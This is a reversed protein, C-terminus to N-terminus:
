YLNGVGGQSLVSLLAWAFIESSEDEGPCTASLAPNPPETLLVCSKKHAQHHWIVLTVEQSELSAAFGFFNLNM